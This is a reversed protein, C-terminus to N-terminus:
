CRSKAETLLNLVTPLLWATLKSIFNKHPPASRLRLEANLYFDTIGLFLLLNFSSLIVGLTAGNLNKHFSCHWKFTPRLFDNRSYPHPCSIFLRPWASVPSLEISPLFPAFIYRLINRNYFKNWRRSLVASNITPCSHCYNEKAGRYLMTTFHLEGRKPILSAYLILLICIPYIFLFNFLRSIIILNIM